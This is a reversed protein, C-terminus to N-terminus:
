NRRSQDGVRKRYGRPGPPAGTRVVPVSATGLIGAGVVGRHCLDSGARSTGRTSTPVHGRRAGALHHTGVSGHGVGRRCSPKARRTLCWCRLARGGRSAENRCRRRNRGCRPPRHAAAENHDGSRGYAEGDGVVCPHQQRDYQSLRLASSEDIPRGLLDVLADHISPNAIGNSTLLFKM